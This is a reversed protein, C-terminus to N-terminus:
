SAVTGLQYVAWRLEGGLRRAVIAGVPESVASAQLYPSLRDTLCPCCVLLRQRSATKRRNRAGLHRQEGTIEAESLALKPGLVKDGLAQAAVVM